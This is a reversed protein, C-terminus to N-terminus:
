YFYLNQLFETKKVVSELEIYGFFFYYKRINLKHIKFLIKGSGIDIHSITSGFIKAFFGHGFEHILTAIPLIILINILWLVLSNVDYNM